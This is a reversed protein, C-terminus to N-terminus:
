RRSKLKKDQAAVFESIEPLSSNNTKDDVGIYSLTLDLENAIHVIKQEILQEQAQIVYQIIEQETRFFEKENRMKASVPMMFGYKALKRKFTNYIEKSMGYKAQMFDRYDKYFNPVRIVSSLKVYDADIGGIFVRERAKVYGGSVHGGPSSCKIDINDQTFLDLIRTSLGNSLDKRLHLSVYLIGLYPFQCHGDAQYKPALVTIAGERPQHTDSKDWNLMATAYELGWHPSESTSVFPLKTFGLGKLVTWKDRTRQSSRGDVKRNPALAMDGMLTQYSNVYRQVYEIYRSSYKERSVVLSRGLCSNVNKFKKLDLMATVVSKSAHQLKKGRQQLAHKNMNPLKFSVKAKEHTAGSYLGQREIEGKDQAIHFKRSKAREERSFHEKYFHVGRYHAIGIGMDREANLVGEQLSLSQMKENMAELTLAMEDQKVLLNFHTFGGTHLLHIEQTPEEAIHEHQLSLIQEDNKAWIYLTINKLYAYALASQCGLWIGDVSHSLLDLYGLYVTKILCFQELPNPNQHPNNYYSSLAAEFGKPQYIDTQIAEAIETWLQRRVIENECGLRLTSTLLARDTGLGIFACDGNPSIWEEQFQVTEHNLVASLPMSQTGISHWEDNNNHQYHKESFYYDDEDESDTDSANDYEYLKELFSKLRSFELGVAYHAPVHHMNDSANINAKAQVLLRVQSYANAQVARHLPTQVKIDTANVEAACELLRKTIQISAQTNQVVSLHLATQNDNNVANVDVDLSLLSDICEMQEAHVADHLPSQGNQARIQADFGLKYLRILMDSYGATAALHMATRGQADTSSVTFKGSALISAVWDYQQHTLAQILKDSM